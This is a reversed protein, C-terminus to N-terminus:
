QTLQGVRVPRRCPDVILDLGVAVASSTSSVSPRASQRGRHRSVGTASSLTSERNVTCTDWSPWPCIAQIACMVPPRQVCRSAIAWALQNADASAVRRFSRSPVRHEGSGPRVLVSYVAPNTSGGVRSLSPGRPLDDALM